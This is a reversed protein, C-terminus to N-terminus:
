AATCLLCPGPASFWKRRRGLDAAASQAPGYAGTASPKQARGACNYLVELGGLLMAFISEWKGFLTVPEFTSGLENLETSLLKGDTRQVEFLYAASMANAQAHFEAPLSSM